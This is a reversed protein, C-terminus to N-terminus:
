SEGSPTSASSWKFALAAELVGESCNRPTKGEVLAAELSGWLSHQRKVVQSGTCGRSGREGGRGRGGFRGLTNVLAQQVCM